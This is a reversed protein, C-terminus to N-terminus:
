GIASRAGVCCAGGWRDQERGIPARAAECVCSGVRGDQRGGIAVAGGRVCRGLKAQAWDGGGEWPRETESGAWGYFVDIVLLKGEMLWGRRGSVLWDPASRQLGFGAESGSVWVLSAALNLAVRTPGARNVRAKERGKTKGCVLACTVRRAAPRLGLPLCEVPQRGPGHWAHPSPWGGLCAHPAPDAQAVTATSM